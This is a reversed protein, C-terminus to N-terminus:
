SPFIAVFFLFFIAIAFETDVDDKEFGYMFTRKRVRVAAM